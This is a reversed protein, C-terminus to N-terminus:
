CIHTTSLYCNLFQFRPQHTGKDTPMFAWAEVWHSFSAEQVSLRLPASEEARNARQHCRASM